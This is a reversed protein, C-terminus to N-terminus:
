GRQVLFDDLLGPVTRDALDLSAREKLDAVAYGQRGAATTATLTLIGLRRQFFTQRLNWGIVADADLIVRRRVLSGSRVILYRGALVHGLARYRDLGLPVALVALLGACVVLWSPVGGALGGALLGAFVLAPLTVARLLRRRCAVEGHRLLPEDVGRGTRMIPRILGAVRARPAPPALLSGGRESGRGVRLGTAVAILRAGGVLRLLLPESLEVGRLRREEISTARTTILGRSVHISGGPHRTLRFNWFALTYGIMSLVAIFVLVGLTVQVVDLWLPTSDLHRSASQVAGVRKVDLHAQEVIRWAFGAIALATLAGSLTFPAYRIWGPNFRLLEVEADPTPQGAWGPRPALRHGNPQAGPLAYGASGPRPNPDLSVAAATSGAVPHRHLLESRLRQADAASLGDLELSERKRDTSGTGISVKALGLARHLAHSTVDVTRVRDARAAVVKRRFLGTRLQVQDATIRYRTTFWRIVSLTIVVALGILSWWHGGGGNSHGAFFLAILAPIFRIVERVPHILLMRPSLRRWDAAADSPGPGGKTAVRPARADSHDGLISM